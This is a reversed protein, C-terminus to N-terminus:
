GPVQFAVTHADPAPCTHWGLRSVWSASGAHAWSTEWCLLPGAGAMEEAHVYGGVARLGRNLRLNGKQLQATLGM